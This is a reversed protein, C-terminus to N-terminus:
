TRTYNHHLLFCSELQDNFNHENYLLSIREKRREFNQFIRVEVEKFIFCLQKNYSVENHNVKHTKQMCLM